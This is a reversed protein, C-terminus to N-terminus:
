SPFTSSTGHLSTGPSDLGRGESPVNVGIGPCGSPGGRFHHSPHNAIPITGGDSVYEVGTIRYFIKGGGLSDDAWVVYVDNGFV